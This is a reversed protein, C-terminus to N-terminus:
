LPKLLTLTIENTNANHVIFQARKYRYTTEPKYDLSIEQTFAPRAYGDNYERYVFKIQKGATGMYILTSVMGSLFDSPLLVLNSKSYEPITPLNSIHMPVGGTNLSGIWHDSWYLAPTINPKKPLYIGGGMTSDGNLSFGDGIAEYYKGGVDEAVLAYDAPKAVLVREKGRHATSSEITKSITILDYRYLPASSTMESGIMITRRQEQLYTKEPAILNAVNTKVPTGSCGTIVLALFFVFSKEKM